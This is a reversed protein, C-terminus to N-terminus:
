RTVTLTTAVPLLTSYIVNVFKQFDALPANSVYLVDKDSIPFSQAVFFMAPDKLNMRYIVPVKGDPTTRASARDEPSLAAPNELRFLFVGKVDARADQLGSVRGLAQALTIGTAEFPVEENRNTAGLAVFSYPQFLVTMVDDPRLVVNQRPDRIVAELPMTAVQQGRTIQVVTKGVPQKSGGASALVDLVREGKATLPVRASGGVEGVVTVTATANRLLRVITQPQHAKGTLRATIERAIAQPTRGAAQVNGVFPIVIKGDSDVMQEPLSTGRATAGSSSLRPDGGLAGFLAAPPAEWVAIELVDGKGITSGIAQGEGLNESFLDQRKSALLRRAVADTVQIVKIGASNSEDSEAQKIGRTSPGNAPAVACASLTSAICAIGIVKSSLFVNKM